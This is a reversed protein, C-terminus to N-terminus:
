HGREWMPESIFRLSLQVKLVYKCANKFSLRVIVHKIKSRYKSMLKSSRGSKISLREKFILDPFCEIVSELQKFTLSNSMRIYTTVEQSSFMQRSLFRKLLFLFALRNHSPLQAVRTLCEKFRIWSPNLRRWNHVRLSCSNVTFTLNELNLDQNRKKKLFLWQHTFDTWQSDFSFYKM